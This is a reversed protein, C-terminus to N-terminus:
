CWEAALRGSRFAGNISGNTIYDGAAITFDNIVKIAEQDQIHDQNPLAYPVDFTKLHEWNEANPFWKKMELKVDNPTASLGTETNRVTLSILHGQKAYKPAIASINCVNNVIGNPDPNLAIIPRQLDDIESAFYMNRTTRPPQSDVYKRAISNSETAIIIKEATLVIGNTCTVKHDDIHSVEHQLLIDDMSLRSVLQQPIAEMGNTPVVAYGEGFMKFVFDFMRRSTSLDDELFIGRFFPKFFTQIMRDSFGYDDKLAALTTKEEKQFLDKEALAGLKTKLRLMKIKDWLTGVDAKLTAALTSIQRMPDGILVKTGDNKLILAGPDFRQFDLLDYDLLKKGEDYATLYVQFGRDMLFGGVVDTKIRGGVRESAELLKFPIREEQLYCAATLGTVGGGIIIVKTDM